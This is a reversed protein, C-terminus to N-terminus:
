KKKAQEAALAERARIEELKKRLEAKKQALQARRRETRTFEDLEDDLQGQQLLPQVWDEQEDLLVMEGESRRTDIAGDEAEVNWLGKVGKIKEPQAAKERAENELADFERIRGLDEPTLIMTESGLEEETNRVLLRQGYDTLKRDEIDLRLYPYEEMEDPGTYTLHGRWTIDLTKAEADVVITDIRMGVREKGQGRDITVDPLDGPLQFLLRGEPTLNILEIDENGRVSPLVLGPAAGNYFEPRFPNLKFDLLNELQQREAPKEPDLRSTYEDIVDQADALNEAPVGALLARPVWSKAIVGLGAPKPGGQMVAEPPIIVHAATIPQMPDEILPLELGDVLERANAVAFGRGVPNQPYHVPVSGPPLSRKEKAKGYVADIERKRQREAELWGEDDDHAIDGERQQDLVHEEGAVARADRESLGLVSPELVVAGADSTFLVGEEAGAKPVPAAIAEIADGPLNTVDLEMTRGSDPGDGAPDDADPLWGPAPHRKPAAAPAPEASPTDVFEAHRREQEAARARVDAPIKAEAERRADEAALQEALAIARQVQEETQPLIGSTGGYAYEYRVPVKTIPKPEGIRPAQPVLVKEKGRKELKPPTWMVRRPGVIQLRKEADGIRASVDFKTTPVGGPSYAVALVVIDVKPKFPVFDNEVRASSKLPDDGAFYEDKPSLKAPADAVVALSEAEDVKYARKCVVAIVHNGAADRSPFYDAVYKEKEIPPM